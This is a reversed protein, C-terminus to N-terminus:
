DEAELRALQEKLASVYQKGQAEAEFMIQLLEEDTLNKLFKENTHM